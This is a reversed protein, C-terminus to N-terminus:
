ILDVPKKGTETFKIFDAIWQALPEATHLLTWHKANANRRYTNPAWLLIDEFLQKGVFPDNEAVILQIPTQTHRPETKSLKNLFNARYLNIGFLGDKRQHPNTPFSLGENKEMMSPWKHSFRQWFTPALGPLQFVMIYWSHMLQSLAKKQQSWQGSLLRSRLWYSAHDLAPGSLSTFSLFREQLSPDTVSEWTQISGWDHGVLHVQKEPVFHNIVAMLDASLESMAYAKIASPADSNGAGRVDYALVYFDKALASMVPEWIHHNDPYGHIFMIPTNQPNGASYAALKIGKRFIAHSQFTM